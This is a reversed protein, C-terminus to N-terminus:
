IELKPDGIQLACTNHTFPSAKFKLLFKYIPLFDIVKLSRLRNFDKYKLIDLLLIFYISKGPM